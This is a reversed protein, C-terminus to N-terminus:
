KWHIWTKFDLARRTTTYVKRKQKRKKSSSNEFWPPLKKCANQQANKLLMQMMKHACQGGKKIMRLMDSEFQRGGKKLRWTTKGNEFVFLFTAAHFVVTRGCDV